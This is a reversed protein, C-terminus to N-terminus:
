WEGARVYLCVRNSMRVVQLQVACSPVKQKFCYLNSTYWMGSNELTRGLAVDEWVDMACAKNLKNADGLTRQGAWSWGQRRFLMLWGKEQAMEGRHASREKFMLFFSGGDLVNITCAFIPASFHTASNQSSMCVSWCCGPVSVGTQSGLQVGSKKQASQKRRAAPFIRVDRLCGQEQVLVAASLCFDSQRGHGM